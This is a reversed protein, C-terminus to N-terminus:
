EWEGTGPTSSDILDTFVDESIETIEMEPEIYMKM